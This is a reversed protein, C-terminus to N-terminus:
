RLRDSESGETFVTVFADVIANFSIWVGRLWNIPGSRSRTLLRGLTRKAFVSGGASAREFYKTAKTVDKEVGRGTLYMRGLFHVAPVYNKEAGARFATAAEEYRKQRIYLRGLYYFAPVCNAEAARRFWKEAEALDATIAAGSRYAAGLYVM